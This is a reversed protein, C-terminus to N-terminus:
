DEVCGAYRPTLHLPRPARGDGAGDAPVRVSGAVASACSAPQVATLRRGPPCREPFRAQGGPVGSQGPRRAM